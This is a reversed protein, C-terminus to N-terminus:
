LSATCLVSLTSNSSQLVMVPYYLSFFVGTQKGVGEAKTILNLACQTASIVATLNLWQRQKHLASCRLWKLVLLAPLIGMHDADFPSPQTLDYVLWFSEM